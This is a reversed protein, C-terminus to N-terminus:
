TQEKDHTFITEEIGYCRAASRWFVDHREDKTLAASLRKFANWLVGYSFQGKDVPFNSEFMSRETGFWEICADIYPAWDRALTVSDPPEPHDAYRYGMVALGFGGLKIRTNPLQALRKLGQSWRAFVDTSGPAYLGLGLPGGCHDIVLTLEPVARALGYVEDLQTHYAWVDLCLGAKAVQAAGALFAESTLLGPKAPIPNSQVAPDPHYATSNRIGVVRGQGVEQLASLAMQVDAGLQLDAHAVIGVPHCPTDKGWDLITEVEGLSRLAEPGTTRYGTRCQVYLSARVDHGQRIDDVFEPCQYRGEPRDWLHHHADFIPQQADIAPEQTLSLWALRVPFHPSMIQM